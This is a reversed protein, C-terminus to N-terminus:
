TSCNLLCVALWRCCGRSRTKTLTANHVVLTPVVYGGQLAPRVRRRDARLQLPRVAISALIPQQAGAVHRTGRAAHWLWGHDHRSHCCWRCHLPTHPRPAHRQLVLTPLYSLSLSSRTFPSFALAPCRPVVHASVPCRPAGRFGDGWWEQRGRNGVNYGVNTFNM